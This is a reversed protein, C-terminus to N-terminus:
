TAARRSCCRPGPLSGPGWGWRPGWGCGAWSTRPRCPTSTSRRSTRSPSSARSTAPRRHGPAERHPKHLIAKSEELTTGERATVLHDKTMVVAVRQDLNSEYRLDRNTIIGVLKSGEVVPVGSIRYRSMVEHVERLSASPGVTVPDVIMGSESKKVQIVELVQHEIALNKHIFGIGGQRAM